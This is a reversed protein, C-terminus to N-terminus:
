SLRKPRKHYGSDSSEISPVPIDDICDFTRKNYNKECALYDKGSIEGDGNTDAQKGNVFLLQNSWTTSNYPNWIDTVLARGPGTTWGKGQCAGLYLIDKQDVIDDPFVDGPWVCDSECFSGCLISPDSSLLLNNHKQKIAEIKDEIGDFIELHFKDRDMLVNSAIDIDVVQGPFLIPDQKIGSISRYDAEPFNETYMSWGNTDNPPDHFMFLSTDISGENYGDGGITVPMGDSWRGCFYNLFDFPTVPIQPSTIGSPSSKYVMYSKLDQNLLVNLGVLGFDYNFHLVGGCFEEKPEMNYVFSANSEPLCGVYDDIPCALNEDVWFAMQFDNLIEDGKYCISFNTFITNNFDDDLDCNFMYVSQHFELKINNVGYSSGTNLGEDNYVSFAFLVPSWVEELSSFTVKANFVPLDGDLINYRGDMNHDYFPALEQNLINGNEPGINFYPNGKAPWELIDKPVKAIDINEESILDKLNEIQPGKITWVRKFYTCANEFVLGTVDSIPGPLNSSNYSQYTQRSMLLNGSQDEAALWMNSWYSKSLYEQNEQLFFKECSMLHNNGVETNRYQNSLDITTTCQAYIFIPCYLLFAISLLKM